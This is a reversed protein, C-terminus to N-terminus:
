FALSASVWYRWDENDSADDGLPYGADFRLNFYCPIWIRLGLGAGTLTNDKGPEGATLEEKYYTAGHDAFFAWNVYKNLRNAGPLFPTRLEASLFYGNDGLYEGTPYGRVSDPGGIVFQEGTLLNDTAVQGAGRTILQCSGMKLINTVDINFKVWSSDTISPRSSSNYDDDSMGDFMSGLGTTTNFTWHTRHRGLMRDGELGIDLVAYEDSSATYGKNLLFNEYIKKKLGASWSFNKDRARVVPYSVGFGYVEAEGEIGLQMWAPGSGKVEYDMKSYNFNLKAGSSGVPLSYGVKWYLMQDFDEPNVLATLSLVDGHKTLNGWDWVFGARHEGTSESGFNNYLLAFNMPYWQEWVDLVIDTTGPTKGKTLTAKVDLKPYDNLLLLGRELTRNNLIEEKTICDLYGKIFSTTYYKNNEVLVEGPKGEVVEIELIGREMKQVPIYAFSTVYGKEWYKRTLVDALELLQPVALEKGKYKEISALLEDTSVHKNGSIVFKEIKVKKADTEVKLEPRSPTSIEPVTKAEKPTTTEGTFVKESDAALHTAMFLSFMVVGVLRIKAVM